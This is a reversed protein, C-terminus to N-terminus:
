FSILWIHKFVHVPRLTFYGKSKDSKLPVQIKEVYKRFIRLYLVEHFDTWHSGLLEMLVSLLACMVFSITVKRLKAFVGLFPLIKCETDQCGCNNGYFVYHSLISVETCNKNRLRVWYEFVDLM